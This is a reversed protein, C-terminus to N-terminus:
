MIDTSRELSTHLPLTSPLQNFETATLKTSQVAHVVYSPWTPPTQEPLHMIIQKHWISLQSLTSPTPHPRNSHYPSKISWYEDEYCLYGGQINQLEIFVIDDAVGYM